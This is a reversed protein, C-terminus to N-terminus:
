NVSSFPFNRDHGTRVEAVSYIRKKQSEYYTRSLMEGVLGLSILQVGCIILLISALFLPGHAQMIAIDSMLKRFM